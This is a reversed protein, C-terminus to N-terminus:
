TKRGVRIFLKNSATGNPDTKVNAPYGEDTLAAALEKAAGKTKADVDASVLVEITGLLISM